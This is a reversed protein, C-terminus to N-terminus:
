LAHGLVLQSSLKLQGSEPAIFVKSYTHEVALVCARTTQAALMDSAATDQLGGWLKWAVASSVCCRVCPWWFSAALCKVMFLVLVENGPDSVLFDPNIDRMNLQQPLVSWVALGVLGVPCM